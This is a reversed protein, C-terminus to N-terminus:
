TKFQRMLSDIKQVEKDLHIRSQNAEEGVEQNRRALELITNISGRIEKMDGKEDEAAAAIQANMVKIQDVVVVIGAFADSTKAIREKIQLAKQQADNMVTVAKSSGTNLNSIITAISKTSEQTRSALSRVEDAVVAFGRGSEGARAAEIAANLALLNTQEAISRIVELMSSINQSDTLLAAIVQSANEVESVIDDVGEQASVVISNGSYTTNVAKESSGNADNAADGVKELASAIKNIADAVRSIENLQTASGTASREIFHSIQTSATLLSTNSTQAQTVLKQIREVFQNFYVALQHMENKNDSLKLRVTLDSEGSSLEQLNDTVSQIPKVVYSRAFFMFAISLGIGALLVALLARKANKQITAVNQTESEVKSDAEEEMEGIFSLLKVIQNNLDKYENEAPQNNKLNNWLRERSQHFRTLYNDMESITKEAILKSGKMRGLAEEEMAIADELIPTAESTSIEQHYVKNLVIIQSELGIQGEMAGDAADWAPGSIYNLLNGLQSTTNYGVWTSVGTILLFGLFSLLVSNKINM